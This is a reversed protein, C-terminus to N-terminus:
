RNRQLIPEGTTLTKGLYVLKDGKKIDKFEKSYSPMIKLDEDLTKLFIPIINKDNKTIEILSHYHSQDELEIEHVKPYKRVAEVLNIFDDTHSFLGERP